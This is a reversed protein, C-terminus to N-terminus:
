TARELLISRSMTAGSVIADWSKVLKDDLKKQVYDDGDIVFILQDFEELKVSNGAAPATPMIRNAENLTFVDVVNGVVLFTGGANTIRILPATFECICDGTEVESNMRVAAGGHGTFHTWARTNCTKQVPVSSVTALTAGTTPDVAPKGNPWETWKLVIPTAQKGRILIRKQAFRVNTRTGTNIESEPGVHDQVVTIAFSREDSTFPLPTSDGEFVIGVSPPYSVEGSSTFPLQRSVTTPTITLAFSQEGSSIGLPVVVATPAVTPNFRQEGSVPAPLAVAAVTPAVAPPFSQEGSVPAPLTVVVTTPAVAPAFAVEGSSTFPLVVPTANGTGTIAPNFAQEGSGFPLVFTNSGIQVLSPNYAVEGSTPAPLAVPITTPSVAPNFSVEGSTPAPLAVTAITPSVAPNFAQEGSAGFALAVAANTPAVAPNYAVEGSTPAPLTLAVTTPAVAPNFAVEGSTPAPLTLVATTPAVAPNFAQEGSSGFPLSLAANTQSISPNYAVEGSSPAPLTLSVTTPSVAPNFSSENSVPAPLAVVANTPVIAPNFTQEGSTGFPLPVVGIIAPNFTQEGSTPAPLTVTANGNVVLAPNFRAEESSGFPLAVSNGSTPVKYAVKRAPISWVVPAAPLSKAGPSAGITRTWKLNGRGFSPVSAGNSNRLGLCPIFSYLASRNVPLAQTMEARIEAQSLAKDFVKVLQMYRPTASNSSLYPIDGGIAIQRARSTPTGFNGSLELKGNLYGKILGGGVATFAVHNWKQLPTATAGPIDGVAGTASSYAHVVNGTPNIGFFPEEEGGGVTGMWFLTLFGGVSASDVYVWGTMTFANILHGAPLNASPYYSPTTAEAIYVPNNRAVVLRSLQDRNTLTFNELM